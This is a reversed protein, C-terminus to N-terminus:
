IADVGEKEIPLWDVNTWSNILQHNLKGDHLLCEVLSRESIYPKIHQYYQKIRVTQIIWYCKRNLECNQLNHLKTIINKLSLPHPHASYCGFYRQPPGSNLLVCKRWQTHTSYCPCPDCCLEDRSDPRPDGFLVVRLVRLIGLLDHKCRLTRPNKHFTFTYAESNLM